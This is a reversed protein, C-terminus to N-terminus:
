TEMHGIQAKWRSVEGNKKYYSERKIGIKTNDMSQYKGKGCLWMGTEYIRTIIQTHSIKICCKGPYLPNSCNICFWRTESTKNLTVQKGLGCM